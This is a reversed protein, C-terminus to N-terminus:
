PADEDGHREQPAADTLDGRGRRGLPARAGDAQRQRGPGVADGDRDFNAAAQRQQQAVLGARDRSRHSDEGQRRREAEVGAEGVLVLHDMEQLVQHDHAAQKLHGGEAGAPEAEIRAEAGPTKATKTGYGLWSSGMGASATTDALVAVRVTRCITWRLRPWVCPGIVRRILGPSRPSTSFGKTKRSRNSLPPLGILPKPRCGWEPM